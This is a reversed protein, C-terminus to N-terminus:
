KAFIHKGIQKTQPRGWIWDSSATDPNFYYISGGTPDWGNLADFCAKRAQENPDLWFTGNAVAEFALPQFIVGSPTNPFKEDDLRNLIVAAVAVQGVYPEGRAESYVARAMLQIDGEDMGGAVKKTLQEEGKGKQQESTDGKPSENKGKKVIDSNEKFDDAKPNWNKTAVWLKERTNVGIKGDVPIGFEYQFLRAAKYTREGFHGDVKGTYFGLYSLRQQLEWIYGGADGKVYIRGSLGPTWAKTSEWLKRKTKGGVVGDVKMGFSYQFLRVAKETRDAFQGDVKGTYFGIYKLRNQLEYVDGGKAGVKLEESGFASVVAQYSFFLSGGLLLMCIVWVMLRRKNM